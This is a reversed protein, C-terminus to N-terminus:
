GWEADSAAAGPGGTADFRRNFENEDISATEAAPKSIIGSAVGYALQGDLGGQLTNAVHGAMSAMEERRIYNVIASDRPVIEAFASRKRPNDARPILRQSISMQFAQALKSAGSKGKNGIIRECVTGIDRAHMTTLVLHGSLAAEM